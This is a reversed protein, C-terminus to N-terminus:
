LGLLGDIAQQISQNLFSTLLGSVVEAAVERPELTAGACGELLMGGGVLVVLLRTWARLAWGRM